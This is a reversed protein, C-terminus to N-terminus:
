GIVPSIRKLLRMLDPFNIPKPLYSDMGAEQSLRRYEPLAHATLAVIPVQRRDEGAEGARIRRAAELGDMGPMELDMLVVDVRERRLLEIAELGDRAVFTQMGLRKLFAKGVLVNEPNDEALLVRLPSAGAEAPAEEPAAAPLESEQTLPLPLAFAFTSGANEQSEMCLEGGMM